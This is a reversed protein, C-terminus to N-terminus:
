RNRKPPKTELLQKYLYKETPVLSFLRTELPTYKSALLHTDGDMWGEMREDAKHVLGVGTWRDM